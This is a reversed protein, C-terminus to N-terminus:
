RWATNFASYGKKIAKGLSSFLGPVRKIAAVIVSALGKRTEPVPTSPSAPESPLVPRIEASSSGVDATINSTSVSAHGVSVSPSAALAPTVGVGSILSGAVIATLVSRRIRM